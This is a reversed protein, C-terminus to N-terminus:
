VSTQPATDPKLREEVEAMTERRMGSVIVRDGSVSVRIDSYDNQAAKLRIQELKKILNDIPMKYLDFKEFGREVFTSSQLYEQDTM